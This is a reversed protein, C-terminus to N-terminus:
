PSTSSTSTACGAAFVFPSLAAGRAVPRALFPAAEAAIARSVYEPECGDVCVVVVPRDMWRYPRGYVVLPRRATM